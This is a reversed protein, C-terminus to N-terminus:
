QGGALLTAGESALARIQDDSYGAEALVQASHEGLRPAQRAVKPPTRSWQSPIAMSRIPGESPHEVVDFFGVAQLHADALLTDIARKQPESASNMTAGSMLTTRLAAAQHNTAQEVVNLKAQNAPTPAALYLVALLRETQIVQEFKGTPEGTANKLTNARALNIANRATISTTFIYLGLLSLLPILALLLIRKRVSRLRWTM